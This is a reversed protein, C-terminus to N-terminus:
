GDKLSRTSATTRIGKELKDADGASFRYSPTRNVTLPNRKTVENRGSRRRETGSKKSILACNEDISMFENNMDSSDECTLNEYYNRHSKEKWGLQNSTGDKSPYSQVNRYVDYDNEFSQVTALSSLSNSSNSRVTKLDSSRRKISRNIEKVINFSVNSDTTNSLFLNEDSKVGNDDLNSGFLADTSRSNESNCNNSNQPSWIMNKQVNIPSTVTEPSSITEPITNLVSQTPPVFLPNMETHYVAEIGLINMVLRSNALVITELTQFDIKTETQTGVTTATKIDIPPINEQYSESNAAIDRSWIEPPHSSCRALVHDISSAVVESDNPLNPISRAPNFKSNLDIQSTISSFQM